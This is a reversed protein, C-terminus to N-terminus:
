SSGQEHCREFWRFYERPAWTLPFSKEEALYWDPSNPFKNRRQADVAGVYVHHRQLRVLRHNAPITVTQGPVTRIGGDLTGRIHPDLLGYDGTMHLAVPDYQDDPIVFTRDGPDCGTRSEYEDTRDYQAAYSFRIFDMSNPITFDSWMSWFGANRAETSPGAIEQLECGTLLCVLVSLTAVTGRPSQPM